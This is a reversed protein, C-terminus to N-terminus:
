STVGAKLAELLDDLPVSVIASARDVKRQIDALKREVERERDGRSQGEPPSEHLFNLDHITLLVPVRADFPMYKSMQNTVHWLDYRRAGLFPQVIPRVLGAVPNVPAQPADAARAPPGALFFALAAAAGLM